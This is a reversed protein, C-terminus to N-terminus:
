RLAKTHLEELKKDMMPKEFFMTVNTDEHKAKKEPHSCDKEDEDEDEDDAAEDKGTRLIERENVQPQRSAMKLLAQTRVFVPAESCNQINYIEM